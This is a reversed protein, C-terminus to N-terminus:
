EIRVIQASDRYTDQRVETAEEWGGIYDVTGVRLSGDYRSLERILEGVTM